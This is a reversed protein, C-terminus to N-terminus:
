AGFKIILIDGCQPTIHWPLGKGQCRFAQEFALEKPRPVKKTSALYHFDYEIDPRLPKHPTYVM